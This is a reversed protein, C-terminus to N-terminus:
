PELDYSLTTALLLVMQYSLNVLHAKLPFMGVLFCVHESSLENGPIEYPRQLWFVQLFM